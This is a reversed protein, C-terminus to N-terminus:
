GGHRRSTGSACGPWRAGAVRAGARPRAPSRRTTSTGLRAFRRTATVSTPRGPPPRSATPSASAPPSSCTTTASPAAVGGRRPLLPLAYRYWARNLGLRQLFSTRIDRGDFRGDTADRRYAITYIPGRPFAAAMQAFTREAGRFFILYDAVLAPSPTEAPRSMRAGARRPLRRRARRGAGRDHVRRAVRARGAEGLAPTRTPWPGRDRRAGDALAAPSEPEVLVGTDAPRGARAIGDVAPRSSRAAGAAMAELSSLPFPDRRSALAFVDWRGLCRRSTPGSSTSSAPPGFGRRLGGGLEADLPDRLRASSSSACGRTGNVPSARRRSTLIDTGKRRSLAAVCGVTIRDGTAARPDARDPLPVGNRVVRARDAVPPSRTPARARSPSSRTPPGSRPRPTRADWKLGDGFMEHVHFVVPTGGAGPSGPTPWPSTRTRTCSRRASPTRAAGRFTALSAPCRAWGAGLERRCAALAALSYAVPREIESSRRGDAACRQRSSARARSASPSSGAARRSARSAGSCPGRRM